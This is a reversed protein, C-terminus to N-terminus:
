RRLRTTSGNESLPGVQSGHTWSNVIASAREGRAEVLLSYDAGLVAAVCNKTGAELLGFWALVALASSRVGKRLELCSEM